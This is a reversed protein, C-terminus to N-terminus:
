KKLFLYYKPLYPFYLIHIPLYNHLFFFCIKLSVAQQQQLKKRRSKTEGEIDHFHLEETSNRLDQAMEECFGGLKEGEGPGGPFINSYVKRLYSLETFNRKRGM